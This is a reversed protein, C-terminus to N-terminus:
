FDYLSQIKIGGNVYYNRESCNFLDNDHEIIIAIDSNDNEIVTFLEELANWGCETADIAKINPYLGRNNKVFIFNIATKCGLSLDSIDTIGYPTEIKGNRADLLEAGDIRQMLQISTDDMMRASINNDFFANNDLIIEDVAFYSKSKYLKIM